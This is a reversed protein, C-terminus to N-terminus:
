TKHVARHRICTLLRQVEFLFDCLALENLSPNKYRLSFLFVIFSDKFFSLLISMWFFIPFPNLLWQACVNWVLDSQVFICSVLIHSHVFTLQQLIIESKHIVCKALYPFKMTLLIQMGSCHVTLGPKIWMHFINALNM